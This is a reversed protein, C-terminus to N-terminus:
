RQVSDEKMQKISVTPSPAVLPEVPLQGTLKAFAEPDTRASRFRKNVRGAIYEHPDMSYGEELKRKRRKEEEEEKIMSRRDMDKKVKKWDPNCIDFMMSKAKIEENDLLMARVSPDDGM